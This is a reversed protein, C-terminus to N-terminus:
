PARWKGVARELPGSVSSWVEGSLLATAVMPKGKLYREVFRQVDARTQTKLSDGYTEFYDLDAASWFHALMQASGATSEARFHASVEQRTKALALDDDAFYDPQVMRSLEAGLAEAAAVARDPSTRAVLDIAGVYKRTDYTLSIDDVLGGDVLRRRTASLPQNVLGAFVDAAYTDGRNETASPGHWRVLLTVENTEASVLKRRVGALPAIAPTSTTALPDAGRRWGGFSRRALGFAVTDTVDGAVILVANNPVYYKRYLENLADPTANLVALLTGGANKARWGPGEWLLMDSSVRLLQDPDSARREMEGRVVKREAEIAAKGFDPKRVLDALLEIGTSLHRSPFTLFYRASEEDTMGNWFAQIKGAREDFSDNDSTRFLLHEILHPLGAQADSVQTFAGARVVIEVTVFPISPNAITVVQLGNELTTSRVRADPRTAQGAAPSMPTALLALLAATRPVVSHM